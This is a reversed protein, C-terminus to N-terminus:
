PPITRLQVSRISILHTPVCADDPRPLALCEPPPQRATTLHRLTLSIDQIPHASASPNALSRCFRTKPDALAAILSNPHPCQCLAASTLCQTRVLWVHRGSLHTSCNQECGAQLAFSDKLLNGTASAERSQACDLASAPYAAIGLEDNQRSVGTVHKAQNVGQRAFPKSSALLPPM